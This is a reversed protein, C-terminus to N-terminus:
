DLVFWVCFHLVAYFFAFLGLMRRYRALLPQKLTVRLPTICLTLLLFRLIWDGTNHTIFEVPNASLALPDSGSYAQWSGWLLRGLPVLCLCFLGVKTWKSALLKSM